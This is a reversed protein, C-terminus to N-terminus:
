IRTSSDIVVISDKSPIVIGLKGKPLVVVDETDALDVRIGNVYIKEVEEGKRLQYKKLM